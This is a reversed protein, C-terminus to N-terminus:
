RARTPTPWSRRAGPRSFTVDALEARMGEAADAMLPSHAAVSVPLVIARKAGLGEAADAAAQGRRGDRRQGRDPRALQPQRGHVRRRGVSPELEPTSASTSLGIIAAMAGDRSSAQM